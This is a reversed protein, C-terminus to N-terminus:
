LDGRGCLLQGKMQWGQALPLTPTGGSRLGWRHVWPRGGACRSSTASLGEGHPPQEPVAGLRGCLSHMETTHSRKGPVFVREAAGGRVLPVGKGM